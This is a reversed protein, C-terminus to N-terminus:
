ELVARNICKEKKPDYYFSGSKRGLGSQKALESREHTTSIRKTKEKFVFLNCRIAPPRM